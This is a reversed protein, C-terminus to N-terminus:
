GGRRTGSRGVFGVLTVLADSQQNTLPDYSMVQIELSRVDTSPTTGANIVIFWDRGAMVTSSEQKGLDPLGGGTQLETLTNSAVWHALLRDELSAAQRTQERSQTLLTLSVVGFIALAVLIEILTFGRETHRRRM